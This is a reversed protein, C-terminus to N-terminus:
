MRRVAYLRGDTTQRHRQYSKPLIKAADLIENKKVQMMMMMMM